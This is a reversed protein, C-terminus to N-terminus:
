AEKKASSNNGNMLAKVNAFSKELDAFSNWTKAYIGNCYGAKTGRVLVYYIGGFHNQFVDQEDKGLGFKLLWKILLYSYLVRQVSYEDDIKQAVDDMIGYESDEMVDSKWDLISYYTNGDNGTYTFLLDIFGKCIRNIWKNDKPDDATMRFEMEACRNKQPIDKLYIFRGTESNGHIEPLKANLTNWVFKATLAEWEPHQQIHISNKSYIDDIIRLLEKDSIAEEKTMNGIQEFDANEFVKHLADGLNAGRPYTPEADLELKDDYSEPSPKIFDKDDIVIKKIVPGTEQATPQEHNLRGENATTDDEEFKEEENLAERAKKRKSLNTYSYQYISAAGIRRELMKLDPATSSDADKQNVEDLIKKVAAELQKQSMEDIEPDFTKKVFDTKRIDRISHALFAFPSSEDIPYEENAKSEEPINFWNSFQPVIMLSQARTYAVYIIRRWENHIEDQYRKRSILDDFGIYKKDDKKFPLPKMAEKYHDENAGGTIITVPFALGKSAHITMINVTDLDHGKAVLAGDADETNESNCIIGQLHKIVDELTARQNYLYDFIYAGIQRVKTLQQLTSPTNLYTEIETEQFISEQLEAWRYKSALKRWKLFLSVPAEQTNLPADPDIDNVSIRFFNTLLAEHLLKRNWSSFDPADIAKLLSIWQGCEKMSFLNNDKYRTFPIGVRTMAKEIDTMEGRTRALVAFDSFRVNRMVKLDSDYIQLATEEKKIKSPSCCEIIRRVAFDAFQVKDVCNSVWLPKTSKGNLTPASKKQGEGPEKSPTFTIDNFFNGKFLENCANITDDSSRYNTTLIRGNEKGIEQIAKKYVEVDTGQFAFISQKPDGVVVINNESSDLFVKKFIDWQLQNTDQFEDIIAYKYTERLKKVLSSENGELAKHVAHIMDNFSQLKNQVKYNKWLNAVEKAHDFIFQQAKNISTINKLTFIAQLIDVIEPCDWEAERYAPGIGKLIDETGNYGNLSNIIKEAPYRTVRKGNKIGIQNRYAESNLKEWCTKVDPFWELLENINSFRSTFLVSNENELLQKVTNCFNSLFVDEGIGSKRFEIFERSWKDRILKEILNRISGDSIVDLSSTSRAEYAFDRLTKQCFSHITFIPASHINQLAKRFCEDKSNAYSEEMKQRIRDRLEGTAKETYTVILIQSLPISNGNKEGQVLKAVLQQITYTKGTGASAEIFLNQGIKFNKIDFPQM